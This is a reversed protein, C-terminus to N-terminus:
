VVIILRELPPDNPRTPSASSRASIPHPLVIIRLAFGFAFASSDGVAGSDSGTTAGFLSPVPPSGLTSPPEVLPIGALDAPDAATTVGLFGVGVGGRRASLASGGARWLGGGALGTRSLSDLGM